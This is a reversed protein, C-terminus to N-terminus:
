PTTLLNGVGNVWIGAGNVMRGGAHVGGGLASMREDTVYNATRRAGHM